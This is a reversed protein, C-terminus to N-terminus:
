AGNQTITKHSAVVPCKGKPSVPGDFRGLSDSKSEPPGEMRVKQPELGRRGIFCISLEHTMYFRAPLSFMSRNSTTAPAASSAMTRTPEIAAVVM